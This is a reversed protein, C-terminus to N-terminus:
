VLPAIGLKILAINIIERHDFALPPLESLDYWHAGAADDGAKLDVALDMDLIAGYATTIVRGRPDRDPDSFTHIQILDIDTVGTEEALERIAANDLTEDQNVFGGPLAYKGQFPSNAREILLIQSSPPTIRILIIDVTNAARPHDYTYL